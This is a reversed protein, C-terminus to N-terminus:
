GVAGTEAKRGLAPWVAWLISVALVGALAWGQIQLAPNANGFLQMMPSRLAIMWLLLVYALYNRRAIWLCRAGTIAGETTATVM